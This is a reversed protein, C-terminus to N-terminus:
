PPNARSKSTAAARVTAITAAANAVCSAHLRQHLSGRKSGVLARMEASESESSRRVFSRRRASTAAASAIALLNTSRRPPLCTKLGVQKAMTAISAAVSPAACRVPAGAPTQTEAPCHPLAAKTPKATAPRPVSTRCREARLSM